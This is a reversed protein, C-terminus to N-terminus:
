KPRATKGEKSIMHHRSTTLAYDVDEFLAEIKEATIWDAPNESHDNDIDMVLCDSSIFNDISRYNDKYMACVHDARVAKQLEKACTVHMQNPYSCNAKNGACNATFLTLKM